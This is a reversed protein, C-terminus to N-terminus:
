VYAKTERYWIGTMKMFDFNGFTRLNNCQEIIYSVYGGGDWAKYAKAITRQSNKNIM